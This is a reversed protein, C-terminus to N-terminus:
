FSKAFRDKTVFQQKTCDAELLHVSDAGFRNDASYKVPPYVGTTFTKGSAVANIFSQRNLDKVDPVALLMQHITKNLGWLAIGIDDARQNSNNATVYKQYAPKYNPDMSDIADLQPFPSFFKAAGIAPCGLTAVTNLGNTVGPGVYQPFYADQAAANAMYLFITPSILAYVVEAGAAKLDAAVAKAETPGANKPVKKDAVIQLGQQQFAKIASVRADAFSKTDLVALGVKTKGVQNKIMQALQPSQQSYTESVAFYTRLSSLGETNVGASVYPINKSNAYNACATIQDAGAGGVLMFVKDVEVMEACRRRATVPDFTDDRFKVIVRYGGYIGGNDFQWNWYVDKGFDFTKQEIPAAGTVPAHIGITITKKADDIGTRDPAASGGGGTGGTGTRTTTKTGTGSTGTATKGGTGSATGTGTGAGGTGTGADTGTGTGTDTGTGTGSDAGTGTGTTDGGSGGSASLSVGSKQGCAALVLMAAFLISM